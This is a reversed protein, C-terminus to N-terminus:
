GLQAVWLAVVGVNLGETSQKGFGEGHQVVLWDSMLAM